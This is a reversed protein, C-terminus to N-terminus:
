TLESSTDLDEPKPRSEPRPLKPTSYVRHAELITPPRRSMPQKLWYSIAWHARAVVVETCPNGHRTLWTSVFQRKGHLVNNSVSCM